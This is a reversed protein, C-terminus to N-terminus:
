RDPELRELYALALPPVATALERTRLLEDAGDVNRAIGLGADLIHEAYREVERAPGVVSNFLLVVVVALVLGIALGIWALVAIGSSIALVSTM